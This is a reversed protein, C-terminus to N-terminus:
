KVTLEVQQHWVSPILSSLDLDRSARRSRKSLDRWFDANTLVDLQYNECGLCFLTHAGSSHWCRETKQQKKVPDWVAPAPLVGLLHSGYGELLDKASDPSPAFHLSRGHDGVIANPDYVTGGIPWTFEHSSIHSGHRKETVKGLLLSYTLVLIGEKTYHQKLPVIYPREDFEVCM